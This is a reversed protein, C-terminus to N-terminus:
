RIYRLRWSLSWIGYKRMYNGGKQACKQVTVKPRVYKHGKSKWIVFLITGRFSYSSIYYTDYLEPKRFLDFFIQFIRGSTTVRRFLHWFLHSNKREYKTAKECHRLKLKPLKSNPLAVESIMEVWQSITLQTAKKIYM